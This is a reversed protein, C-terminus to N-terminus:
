GGQGSQISGRIWPINFGQGHHKSGEVYSIDFGRGMTNKGGVRPIKVGVRSIDFEKDMTYQFGYYKSRDVWPIKVEQGHYMTYISSRVCPIDSDRGMTYRFGQKHYKSRGVCPKKGRGITYRVGKLPIDSGRGVYKSGEVWSIDFGKDM